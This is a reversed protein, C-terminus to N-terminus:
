RKLIIAGINSKADPGGPRDVRWWRLAGPFVPQKVELGGETRLQGHFDMAYRSRVYYVGEFDPVEITCFVKVWQAPGRYDECLSQYKSVPNAIMVGGGSRQRGNWVCVQAEKEGALGVLIQNLDEGTFPCDHRIEMTMEFKGGARSRYVSGAGRISVNRIQYRIGEGGEFKETFVEPIPQLPKGLPERPIVSPDLQAAELRERAERARLKAHKEAPVGPLFRLRGDDEERKPQPYFFPRQGEAQGAVMSLCLFLFARFVKM